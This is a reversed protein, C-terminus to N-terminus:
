LLFSIEQKTKSSQYIALVIELTKTADQPTVSIPTGYLISNYFSKIQPYHFSGWYDQGGLKNNVSPQIVREQEGELYITVIDGVLHIKGKEGYIEIQIPSNYSFYNCAFLSYIAGNAFKIAASAVDEVEIMTLIRNDVQGNVSVVESDILFRVLDISHIAQDILVGGGEKAWTGKWDCEYYSPPRWWNLTSYAGIIKGLAGTEILKKSEIIGDIYRNQSIVGLKKNTSISTRTMINADELTTAIPKETLVHFGVELCKITHEKHLFHPTLIHVVDLNLKLLEDISTFAQCNSFNSAFEKARSSIKDVAGLVEVNDKLMKFVQHYVVSLRGCGVIGIKLKNM